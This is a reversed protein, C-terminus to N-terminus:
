IQSERLDSSFRLFNSLLTTRSIYIAILDHGFALILELFQAMKDTYGAVIVVLNDRHDEMLKLLTEIAERGFDQGEGSSLSYAEDIFLVGGLSKNVVDDVKLATQGVYGAVLGSRDMEVLHGSELLSLAKLIKAMLRAVSTKGTGPNGFYVQHLSIQTTAMGKSKRLSQVKLLDVLNGCKKKRPSSVLSHM